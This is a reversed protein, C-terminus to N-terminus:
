FAGGLPLGDNRVGINRYVDISMNQSLFQVSGDAMGAHCGGVHRSSLGRGSASLFVWNTGVNDRTPDYGSLNIGDSAATLVNITWCCNSSAGNNSLPAAWSRAWQKDSLVSNGVVMDKTEGLMFTNTTGDTIDRMSVSSNAFFIGNNFASSRSCCANAAASYRSSEPGGGSVGLYNSSPIAAQGAPDSPCKFKSLPTFQATFNDTATDGRGSWSGDMKFTNYRPTEDLFPLILVSWPARLGSAGPFNPADVTVGYGLPFKGHADHYNHLALGLQKLNNKCQSRRAAERAQQVAPLLLAILVAIIAIVVLLEILTFGRSKCFRNQM